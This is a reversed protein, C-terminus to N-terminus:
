AADRRAATPLNTLFGRTEEPSRLVFVNRDRPLSDLKRMIRPRRETPYSWVYRLFEYTLREPCGPTMDPRSRGAYRLRRKVLRWVCLHRPLDLFVVTDAVALRLDLTGGYNGDMVWAERRVLSEVDERWEESPKPQWGPRWYSSDLHIVPLNLLEGIRLAVTTKGAGGSGIVLVRNV